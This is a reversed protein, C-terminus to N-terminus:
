APCPAELLKAVVSRLPGDHRVGLFGPGRGRGREARRRAEEPNELVAAMNRALSEVDGPADTRPGRPRRLPGPDRGRGRRGHARGVRARGVPGDGPRRGGIPFRFSGGHGYIRVRRRPARPFLRRGGISSRRDVTGTGGAPPRRGPDAISRGSGPGQLLAFARLLTAQDKHPVLAGVHM